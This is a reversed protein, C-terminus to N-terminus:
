SSITISITRIGTQKPPEPAQGETLATNRNFSPAPTAAKPTGFPSRATRGDIDNDHRRYSADEEKELIRECRERLDPFKRKDTSKSAELKELRDILGKMRDRMPIIADHLVLVKKELTDKNLWGKVHLEMQVDESAAKWVYKYWDHLRVFEMVADEVERDLDTSEPHSHIDEHRGETRLKLEEFRAKKFHGDQEWMLEILKGVIDKFTRLHEKILCEWEKTNKTANALTVLQNMLEEANIMEGEETSSQVEETSPQIGDTPTDAKAKDKKKTRPTKVESM